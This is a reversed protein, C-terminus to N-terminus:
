VVSGKEGFVKPANSVPAEPLIASKSVTDLLFKAKRCNKGSSGPSNSQRPSNGIMIAVGELRANLGYSRNRRSFDRVIVRGDRTWERV